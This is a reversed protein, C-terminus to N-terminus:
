ATEEIGWMKALRTYSREGRHPDETAGGMRAMRADLEAQGAELPNAKIGSGEVIRNMFNFLACVSVADFLAQENWGAAYVRNADAETMMSPTRTLKSVYALIPKLRDDIGSTELDAMLGDFLGPDIGFARAAVVHAGHCYTCANLGSVYAAILEREAVTLPSPDRLLRDHYELLPMVTHPFRRFVKDLAPEGEISPFVPM